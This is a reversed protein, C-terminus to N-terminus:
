SGGACFEGAACPTCDPGASGAECVVARGSDGAVSADSAAAADNPEGADPGAGRPEGGDQLKGGDQAEGGDQPESADAGSPPAVSGDVSTASTSNGCASLVFAVVSASVTLRFRAHAAARLGNM